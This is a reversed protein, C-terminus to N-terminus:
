SNEGYFDSANMGPQVNILARVEGFRWYLDISGDSCPGIRPSPMTLGYRSRVSLSLRRLFEAARRWTDNEIRQAGEGDWDTELRLLRKSEEISKEIGGPVEVASKLKLWGEPRTPRQVWRKLSKIDVDARPAAAKPREPFNQYQKFDGQM